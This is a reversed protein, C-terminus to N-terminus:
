RRIIVVTRPYRLRFIEGKLLVNKQINSLLVTVTDGNQESIRLQRPMGDVDVWVDATKYFTPTKATIGLRWTKVAGNIEEQGAYTVEYNTALQAMSMTLFSLPNMGDATTGVKGVIVQNLRPRYLEYDDGIVAMQEETPKTWDVRVYRVRKGAQPLYSTSGISTDYVKLVSDYKVMTVSAQLSQLSRNHNDIRRLIERAQATPRRATLIVFDGADKDKAQDFTKFDDKYRMTVVLVRTKKRYKLLTEVTGLRGETHFSGNLHVVLAGKKRKLYQALSDAMTADWLAQSNISPVHPDKAAPDGSAAMLDNFRKTYTPSAEGYPLPALWKKAEKSLGNLSDRGNRSVMNVYRRPANAAIVDLHREKSLEVLPRYDTKYRTWPRSSALFHTETIQDQLYENVVLQVDREFMEMSLAVRRGTAYEAVIKNFIEYELAHDIPDDHQEGLFIVDNAAAAKIVDAISASNGKGDFVRYTEPNAPTQGVGTAATACTLLLLLPLFTRM